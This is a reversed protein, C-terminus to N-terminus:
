PLARFDKLLQYIKIGRLLDSTGDWFIPKPPLSEIYAPDELPKSRAVVFSSSATLSTDIIHVEVEGAWDITFGYNIIALINILPHAVTNDTEESAIDYCLIVSSLLFLQGMESSM